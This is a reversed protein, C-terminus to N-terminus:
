IRMLLRFILCICVNLLGHISFEKSLTAFINITKKRIEDLNGQNRKVMNIMDNIEYDCILQRSEDFTGDNIKKYIVSNAWDIENNSKVRNSNKTNKEIPSNNYITLRSNAAKMDERRINKLNNMTRNLTKKEHLYDHYEHYEAANYSEAHKKRMIKQLQYYVPKKRYASLYNIYKDLTSLYESSEPLDFKKCLKAKRKLCFKDLMKTLDVEFASRDAYQPSTSETNNSTSGAVHRSFCFKQMKLALVGYAVLIAAHSYM